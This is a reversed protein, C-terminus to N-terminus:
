CVKCIACITFMIIIVFDVLENSVSYLPIKGLVPIQLDSVLSDVRGTPFM